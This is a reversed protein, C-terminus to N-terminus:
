AVRAAFPNVIPNYMDSPQKASYYRGLHRMVDHRMTGEVLAPGLFPFVSWYYDPPIFFGLHHLLIVAVIDGTLMAVMGPKVSPTLINKVEMTPVDDRYSFFSVFQEFLTHRKKWYKSLDTIVRTRNDRIADFRLLQMATRWEEHATVKPLALHYGEGFLYEAVKRPIAPSKEALMRLRLSSQKAEFVLALQIQGWVVEPAQLFFRGLAQTMIFRTANHIVTALADCPRPGGQSCELCHYGHLKAVTRESALLSASSPAPSSPLGSFSRRVTEAPTDNAVASTSSPLTDSSTVTFSGSYPRGEMLASAANMNLFEFAFPLRLLPVFSAPLRTFPPADAVPGHRVADVAPMELALLEERTYRTVSGQHQPLTAAVPAPSADSPSSSASVPAAAEPRKPHLLRIRDAASLVPTSRTTTTTTPARVPIPTAAAVTPKTGGTLATAVLSERPPPGRRQVAFSPTYCAARPNM